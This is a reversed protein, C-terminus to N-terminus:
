ERGVISDLSQPHFARIKLIKPLFLHFRGSYLVRMQPM